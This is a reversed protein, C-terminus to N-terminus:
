IKWNPKIEFQEKLVQCINWVILQDINPLDPFLHWEVVCEPKQLIDLMQCIVNECTNGFIFYKTNQNFFHRFNTGSDLKTFLRCQNLYHRPVLYAGLWYKFWHHGMESVWKFKPWRSGILDLDSDRTEGYQNQVCWHCILHLKWFAINLVSHFVNSMNKQKMGMKNIKTWLPEWQHYWISTNHQMNVWQPRAFYVGYELCKWICKRSHFHM